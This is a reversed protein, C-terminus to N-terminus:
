KGRKAAKATKESKKTLYAIDIARIIEEFVDAELIDMDLREAYWTIKDTPIPGVAMGVPRMTALENFAQYLFINTLKPAQEVYLKATESGAEAAQLIAIGGDEM